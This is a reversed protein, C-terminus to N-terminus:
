EFLLEGGFQKHQNLYVIIIVHTKIGEEAMRGM